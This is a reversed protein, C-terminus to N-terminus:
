LYFAYSFRISVLYKKWTALYSLLLPARVRMLMSIIRFPDYSTYPNYKPSQSTKLTPSRHKFFM